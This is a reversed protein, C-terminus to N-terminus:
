TPKLTESTINMLCRKNSHSQAKTNGTESLKVRRSWEWPASLALSRVTGWGGTRWSETSFSLLSPAKRMSAPETLLGASRSEERWVVTSGNQKTDREEPVSQISNWRYIKTNAVKERWLSREHWYRTMTCLLWQENLQLSCLRLLRAWQKSRKFCVGHYLHTM